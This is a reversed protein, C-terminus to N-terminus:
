FFNVCKALKLLIYRNIDEHICNSSLVVALHLFTGELLIKLDDAPAISLSQLNAEKIDLTLRQIQDHLRRVDAEADSLQCNADDQQAVLRREADDAVELDARAGALEAELECTLQELAAEEREM